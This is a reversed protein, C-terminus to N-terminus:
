RFWCDTVDTVLAWQAFSGIFRSQYTDTWLILSRYYKELPIMTRNFWQKPFIHIQKLDAPKV